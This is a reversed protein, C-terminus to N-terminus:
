KYEREGRGGLFFCNHRRGGHNKWGQINRKQRKNICVERWVTGLKV